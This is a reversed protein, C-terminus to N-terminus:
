LTLWGQLQTSLSSTLAVAKPWNEKFPNELAVVVLVLATFRPLLYPLYFDGAHRTKLTVSWLKCFKWCWRGQIKTNHFYQNVQGRENAYRARGQTIIWENFIGLIPGKPGQGFNLSDIDTIAVVKQDRIEDQLQQQIMTKFWEEKPLIAILREKLRLQIEQWGINTTCTRYRYWFWVFLTLGFVKVVEPHQLTVGIWGLTVVEEKGFSGGGLIYILLILSIVILNRRHPNSEAENM